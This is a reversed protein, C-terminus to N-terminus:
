RAIADEDLAELPLFLADAADDDGVVRFFSRLRRLDDRDACSADVVLAVDRFFLLGAGVGCPCSISQLRGTPEPADPPDPLDL